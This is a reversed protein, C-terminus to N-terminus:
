KMMHKVKVERVFESPEPVRKLKLVRLEVQEMLVLVQRYDLGAGKGVALVLEVHNNIAAYLLCVHTEKRLGDLVLRLGLSARWQRVQTSLQILEFKIKDPFLLRQPFQLVM